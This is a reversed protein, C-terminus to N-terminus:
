SPVEDFPSSVTVADDTQYVKIVLGRCRERGDCDKFTGTPYDREAALLDPYQKGDVAICHSCTNTDLIESAFLDGPENDRQYVLKRGANISQQVAGGLVDKAYANSLGLLHSRTEEAVEQPSLAGGTLRIAQRTASQAFESALMKDVAEARQAISKELDEVDQFPVEVGQDRAERVAQGAALAAVVMLRQTIANSTSASVALQALANLDGKAALIQERIEDAQFSRVMSIEQMLLDLASNFSSDISSYDIAAQIEHDYPNRRLPRAPLLLPSTAQSASSGDARVAREASRRPATKKPHTHRYAKAPEGKTLTDKLKPDDV